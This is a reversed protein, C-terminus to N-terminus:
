LSRTTADRRREFTVKVCTDSPVLKFLIFREGDLLKTRMILRLFLFASDLLNLYVPTFNMGSRRLARYDQRETKPTAFRPHRSVIGARRPHGHVLRERFFLSSPSFGDRDRRQIRPRFGCDGSFLTTQSPATLLTIRYGSSRGLHRNSFGVYERQDFDNSRDGM